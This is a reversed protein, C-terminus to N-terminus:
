AEVHAGTGRQLWSNYIICTSGAETIIVISYNANSSLEMGPFSDVVKLRLGTMEGLSSRYAGCSGVVQGNGFASTTAWIIGASGHNM